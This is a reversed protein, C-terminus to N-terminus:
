CKGELIEKVEYLAKSIILMEMDETKDFKDVCSNIIRDLKEIAKKQNKIGQVTISEKM